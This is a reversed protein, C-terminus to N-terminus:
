WIWQSRWIECKTKDEFHYIRLLEDPKYVQEVHGGGGVSKPQKPVWENHCSLRSFTYLIDMKARFLILALM